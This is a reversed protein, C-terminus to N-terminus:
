VVSVITTLGPMETGILFADAAVSGGKQGGQAKTDTETVPNVRSRSSGM